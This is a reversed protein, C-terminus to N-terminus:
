SVDDVKRFAELFKVSTDVMKGEIDRKLYTRAKTAAELDAVPKRDLLSRRPHGGASSSNSLWPTHPEQPEQDSDSLLESLDSDTDSNVTASGNATAKSRQSQKSPRNKAKTSIGSPRSAYKESVLSLAEKSEGDDFSSTSGTVKWLRVSIGTSRPTHTASTSHVRSPLASFSKTPSYDVTSPSRMPSSMM